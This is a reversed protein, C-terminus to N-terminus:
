SNSLPSSLGVQYISQMLNHEAKRENAERERRHLDDKAARHAAADIHHQEAYYKSIINDNYEKERRKSERKDQAACRSHNIHCKRESMPLTRLHRDYKVLHPVNITRLANKFIRVCVELLSEEPLPLQRRCQIAARLSVDTGLDEL